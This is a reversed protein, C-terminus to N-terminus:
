SCFIRYIKLGTYFKNLESDRRLVSNTESEDKNSIRNADTAYRYTGFVVWIGGMVLLFISTPLILNPTNDEGLSVRIHLIM